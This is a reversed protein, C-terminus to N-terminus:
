SVDAAGRQWLEMVMSYRTGARVRTVNHYKHSLFCFVDGRGASHTLHEDNPEFTRFEGGEFDHNLPCVLTLTSGNDYHLDDDLGGGVEYRWREVVRIHLGRVGAPLRTALGTLDTLDTVGALRGASADSKADRRDCEVFEDWARSAFTLLKALVIRLSRSDHQGGHEVDNTDNKASAKASAASSSTPAISSGHETDDQATELPEFQLNSAKLKIKAGGAGAGGTSTGADAAADAAADVRHAGLSLGAAGGGSGTGGCGGPSAAALQVVFRAADEDYDLLACKRGNLEPRRVLGRVVGTQGALVAVTSPGDRVLFSRYKHEFARASHPYPLDPLEPASLCIAIDSASLLGRAVQVRSARAHEVDSTTSPPCQPGLGLTACMM